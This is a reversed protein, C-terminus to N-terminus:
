ARYLHNLTQISRKKPINISVMVGGRALVRYQEQLLPAYDQLHELLGVSVTMDFSNDPFPLSAADAVTITGDARHLAFNEKALAIAAESIDTATVAIGLYRNLYLAMTGRGCGIELATKVGNHKAVQSIYEFERYLAFQRQTRPSDGKRVFVSREEQAGGQLAATWKFQFASNSHKM